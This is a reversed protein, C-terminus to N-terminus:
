FGKYLCLDPGTEMGQPLYNGAQKNLDRNLPQQTPTSGRTPRDTKMLSTNNLIRDTIPDVIRIVLIESCQNAIMSVFMEM